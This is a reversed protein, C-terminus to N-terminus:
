SLIKTIQLKFKYKGSAPQVSQFHLRILAYVAAYNTAGFSEPSAYANLEKLTM